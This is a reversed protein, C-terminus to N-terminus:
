DREGDWRAACKWVEKCRRDFDALAVDFRYKRRAREREKERGRLDWRWCLEAKSATRESAVLQVSAPQARTVAARQPPGSSKVPIPSVILSSLCVVDGPRLPGVPRRHHAEKAMAAPKSGLKQQAPNRLLVGGYTTTEDGRLNTTDMTTTMGARTSLSHEGSTEVEEEEDDRDADTGAWALACQGWLVVRSIGGEGDMVVLESRAMMDVRGEVVKGKSFVKVGIEELAGVERILVLVNIRPSTIQEAHGGHKAPLHPTPNRLISLLSTVERPDFHLLPPPPISDLGTMTMTQGHASSSSSQEVGECSEGGSNLSRDLSEATLSQALKSPGHSKVSSTSRLPAIPVPPPRKPRSTSPRESSTSSLDLSSRSPAPTTLPRSNAMERHLPIPREITAASVVANTRPVTKVMPAPPLRERRRLSADLAADPGATTINVPAKTLCPQVAPLIDQPAKLPLDEREEQMTPPICDSRSITSDEQHAGETGQRGRLHSVSADATRSAGVSVERGRHRDPLPATAKSVDGDRQKRLIRNRSASTSTSADAPSRSFISFRCVSQNARPFSTLASTSASIQRRTRHSPDSSPPLQASPALLPTSSIPKPDSRARKIPSTVSRSQEASAPGSQGTAGEDARNSVAAAPRVQVETGSTARSMQCQCHCTVPAEARGAAVSLQNSRESPTPLPTPPELRRRKRRMPTLPIEEEEETQSANSAGGNQSHPSKQGGAFGQDSGRKLGRKKKDDQASSAEENPSEQMAERASVFTVKGRKDKGIPWVSLGDEDEERERRVREMELELARVESESRLARSMSVNEQSGGSFGEDTHRLPEEGAQCKLALGISTSGLSFPGVLFAREEEDLHFRRTEDTDDIRGAPSDVVSGNASQMRHDRLESRIIGGVHTQSINRTLEQEREALGTVLTETWSTGDDLRSSYHVGSAIGRGVGPSILLSSTRSGEVLPVAALQPIRTRANRLRLAAEGAPTLELSSGSSTSQGMESSDSHGHGTLPDQASRTRGGTFTRDRKQASDSPRPKFSTGGESIHVPLAASALIEQRINESDEGNSKLQPPPAAFPVSAELLPIAAARRRGHASARRHISSSSGSAGARDAEVWQEEGEGRRFYKSRGRKWKADPRSAQEHSSDNNISREKLLNKSQKPPPLFVLYSTSAIAKKLPAPAVSAIASREVASVPAATM